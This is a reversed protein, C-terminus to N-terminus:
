LVRNILLNKYKIALGEFYGSIKYREVISAREVEGFYRIGAKEKFLTKSQYLAIYRIKKIDDIYRAPIYYFREKININFQSQTKVVAVCVNRNEFEAKTFPGAFDGVPMYEFNEGDGAIEKVWISLNETDYPNLAIINEFNESNNICVGYVKCAFLKKNWLTTCM